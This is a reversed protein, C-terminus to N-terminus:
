WGSYHYDDAWSRHRAVARRQREDQGQANGNRSQQAASEQVGTRASVQVISTTTTTTTAPAIAGSSQRRVGVLNTKSVQREWLLNRRLSESMETALMQRRTTRPTSPPAPPPLNYPHSLPIPASTHARRVVPPPAALHEPPSAHRGALAALKQQAVSRSVQITDTANDDASDSDEEMEAGQPRGKRRPSVPGRTANGNNAAASALASIGGRAAISRATVQAALPLAAASKSTQLTPPPRAAASTRPLQALDATSQSTRYPHNPPFRSPDPNLLQSLLGSQTRAIASYARRPVKAFMERQRQAELAAARLRSDEKARAADEASMDESAWSDGGGEEDEEETDTTEYESSTSAVVIRRRGPQAAAAAVAPPKPPSVVAPPPAVLPKPLPALDAHKESTSGKSASKSTETLKSGTSSTSGINFTARPKPGEATVARRIQPARTRRVPMHRAPEKGKRAPRVPRRIEGPAEAAVSPVSGVSSAADSRGATSAVPSTPPNTATDLREPSMTDPVRQLFYRNAPVGAPPPPPPPASTARPTAYPSLAPALLSLNSPLTPPRLHTAPPQTFAPGPAPLVPTAPPTPHPTPNPTPNVVVLRPCSAHESEPPSSPLCVSPITHPPVPTPAPTPAPSLTDAEAPESAPTPLSGAQIDSRRTPLTGKLTLAPARLRQPLIDCIIRGLPVSSKPDHARAHCTHQLSAHALLSRHSGQSCADSHAVSFESVPTPPRYNLATSSARHWLREAINELRPGDSLSNNCKSFVLSYSFILINM